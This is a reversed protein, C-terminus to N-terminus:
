KPPPMECEHTSGEMKVVKKDGRYKLLIVYNQIDHMNCGVILTIHFQFDDM